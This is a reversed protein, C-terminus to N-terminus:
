VNNNGTVTTASKFMFLPFFANLRAYFNLHLSWGGFCSGLWTTHVYRVVWLALDVLLICPEYCKTKETQFKRHRWPAVWCAILSYHKRNTDLLIISNQRKPDTQCKATWACVRTELLLLLLSKRNTRDELRSQRSCKKWCGFGRPKAKGTWVSRRKRRVGHIRRQQSDMHRTPTRLLFM